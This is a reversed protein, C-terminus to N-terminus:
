ETKLKIKFTTLFHDLKMIKCITPWNEWCWYQGLQRKGVTIRPKLTMIYPIM